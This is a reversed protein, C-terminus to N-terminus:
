DDGRSVDNRPSLPFLARSSCAFSDTQVVTPRFGRGHRDAETTKEAKYNVANVSELFNWTKLSKPSVRQRDLEFFFRKQRAEDISSLYQSRNSLLTSDNAM